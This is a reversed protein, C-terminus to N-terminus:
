SNSKITLVVAFGIQRHSRLLGINIVRDTTNSDLEKLLTVDQIESRFSSLFHNQRLPTIFM